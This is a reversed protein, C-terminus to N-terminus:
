KCDRESEREGGRKKMCIWSLIDGEEIERKRVPVREGGRKKM